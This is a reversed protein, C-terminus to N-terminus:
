QQPQAGSDKLAVVTMKIINLSFITILKFVRSDLRGTNHTVGPLNTCVDEARVSSKVIISSAYLVILDM